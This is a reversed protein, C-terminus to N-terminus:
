HMRKVARRAKEQALLTLSCFCAEHWESNPADEAAAKLDAECMELWNQLEADTMQNIIEM